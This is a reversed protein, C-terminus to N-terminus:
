LLMTKLDDFNLIGGYIEDCIRDANDSSYEVEKSFEKIILTQKDKDPLSGTRVFESIDLLRVLLVAAIGGYIGYLGDYNRVSEIFYRYIFYVAIHEYEYQRQAFLRDFDRESCLIEELSEEAAKLAQPFDSRMYDLGQFFDLFSKYRDLKKSKDAKGYEEEFESVIEMLFGDVSLMGTIEGLRKCDESDLAQQIDGAACLLVTLRQLMSFGRNQAIDTLVKRLRIVRDLLDPDFELDDDEEDTECELFKIPATHELVLRCVEECCLGVGAEKYNGFWQYFRPHERCIESIKDEGYKLLVSCLGQENLFPCGGDQGMYHCGDEEYINEALRRGMDDELGQYFRLTEDDVEIDWGIKCCNDRCQSGICHFDQFIDPYYLRMM